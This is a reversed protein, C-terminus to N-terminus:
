LMDVYETVGFVCFYHDKFFCWIVAKFQYSTVMFVNIINYFIENLIFATRKFKRNMLSDCKGCFYSASWDNEVNIIFTEQANFWCILIIESPDHSVSSQLLSASFEAKCWLFLNCKVIYEFLFCNNSITIINWLIVTKNKILYIYGQHASTFDKLFM